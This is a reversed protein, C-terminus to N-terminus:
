KFFTNLVKALRYGAKQAQSEALPYAWEMFEESLSDGEKVKYIVPRVTRGSEELWDEVWGETIKKIKKKSLNDLKQAYGQYGWEKYNRTLVSTDWVKHLTTKKGFFKIPFKGQNEFDVFRVHAPCHMDGVMHIISKLAFMVVSDSLKEREKFMKEFELLGTVADRGERVKNRLEQSTKCETDVVSAHWGRTAYAYEPAEKRVLDMWISYDALPTGKTYKKINAKAEPTLNREAIEAVARHGFGGWAMANFSITCAFILTLIFSKTRMIKAFNIFVFTCRNKLKFLYLDIKKGLLVTQACKNQAHPGRVDYKKYRQM